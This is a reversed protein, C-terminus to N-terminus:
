VGTRQKQGIIRLSQFTLYEAIPIMTVTWCNAWITRQRSGWWNFTSGFQSWSWRTSAVPLWRIWVRGAFVDICVAAIYRVIICDTFTTITATTVMRGVVSFRNLIVFLQLSAMGHLVIIFLYHSNKKLHFLELILCFNNKKKQLIHLM